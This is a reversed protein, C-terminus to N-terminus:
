CPADHQRAQEDPEASEGSARVFTAMEGAPHENPSEDGSEWERWPHQDDPRWLCVAEGDRTEGVPAVPLDDLTSQAVQVIRWLDHQSLEPGHDQLGKEAIGRIHELRMRVRERETM